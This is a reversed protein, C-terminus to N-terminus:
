GNTNSSGIKRRHAARKQKKMAARREAFKNMRRPSHKEAPVAKVATQTQKAGNTDPEQAGQTQAETNEEDMM